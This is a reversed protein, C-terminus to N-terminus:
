YILTFCALDKVGESRSRFKVGGFWSSYHMFCCANSCIAFREKVVTDLSDWLLKAEATGEGCTQM